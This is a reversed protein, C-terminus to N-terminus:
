PRVWPKLCNKLFGFESILAKSSATCININFKLGQTCIKKINQMIVHPTLMLSKQQMVFYSQKFFLVHATRQTQTSSAAKKM